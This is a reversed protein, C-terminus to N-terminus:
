VKINLVGAIFLALVTVAIAVPATIFAVKVNARSNARDSYTKHRSAARIRTGPWRLVLKKALYLDVYIAAVLACVVVSWAFVNIPLPQGYDRQVFLWCVAMLLAPLFVVHRSLQKWPVIPRSNALLAEAITEELAEDSMFGSLPNFEYALIHTPKGQRLDVRVTTRENSYMEGGFSKHFSMEAILSRRDAAGISALEEAGYRRVHARDSVRALYEFKEIRAFFSADNLADIVDEMDIVVSRLLLPRYTGVSETVLDTRYMRPGFIWNLNM